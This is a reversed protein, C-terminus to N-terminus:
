EKDGADNDDLTELVNEVRRCANLASSFDLRGLADDVSRLPEVLATTALARLEAYHDLAAMNSDVLALVLADLCRVFANRDFDQLLVADDAAPALEEAVRELAVIAQALAEGLEDSMRQLQDPETNRKLARELQSAIASLAEAGLTAAVGKLTHAARGAEIRDGQALAASRRRVSEGQEQAFLRAMQAYLTRHGALRALAKDVALVPLEEPEPAPAADTTALSRAELRTTGPRVHALLTAVLIRVDIPKALHDNMGAERSRARDEPSSNATMAIVPLERLGLTHRIVETAEFGDMQPMQIDMLVVDFGTPDARLRSIAEHGDSAIEVLAGEGSLIERAVHRNIPHDEVLLVSVGQLPPGQDQGVTPPPDTVPTSNMLFPARPQRLLVRFESGLGPNSDFELKGGMLNVLWQTIPLGLGTGGFRRKSSTEAQYFPEFIRGLLKADIGIGSDSVALELDVQQQDDERGSVRLKVGGQDTFKVANGVLNMLVQRLRAPDGILTGPTQPDLSVELSLGKDRAGAAFLLQIENLLERLHFPQHEIAIRGAELKSYDLLDDLIALLTRAASDIKETQDRQGSSLESKQLLYTLGLIATMPTRIEHSMNALFESRARNAREALERAESLRQEALRRESLDVLLLLTRAGVRAGHLAFVRTQGDSATLTIELQLQRSDGQELAQWEQLLHERADADPCSASLWQHLEIGPPLVGLDKGYRANSLSLRRQEYVLLPLPLHDVLARMLSASEHLELATRKGASIDRVIWYLAPRGAFEITQARVQVDSITGERSRYRTEFEVRGEALVRAIHRITDMPAPNAEHERVRLRGFEEASYGLLRAAAPNFALPRESDLDVIMVGDPSLDFLTRYLRDAPSRASGASAAILPDAFALLAGSIEGDDRTPTITARLTTQGDGLECTDEFRPLRGGIVASIPDEDTDERGPWRLLERLDRGLLEGPTVGLSRAFAANAFRVCASQDIGALGEDVGQLLRQHLGRLRKMERRRFSAVVGAFVAVSAVLLWLLLGYRAQRGWASLLAARTRSVEVSWPRDLAILASDVEARAQLQDAVSTDSAAPHPDPWSLVASADADRLVISAGAGDMPTLASQFYAPALILASIGIFSGDPARRARAALRGSAALGAPPKYLYLRAEVDADARASWLLPEGSLDLGVQDVRSSASVKGETDILLVAILDSELGSVAHVIAQADTPNTKLSTELRGLLLSAAALRQATGQAVLQATAQLREQEHDKAELLQRWLDLGLGIGILILGAAVLPWPSWHALDLRRLLRSFGAPRPGQSITM